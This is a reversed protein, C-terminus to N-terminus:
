NVETQSEKEEEASRDAQSEYHGADEDSLEQISDENGM